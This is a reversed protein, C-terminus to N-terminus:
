SLPGGLRQPIWAAIATPAFSMVAGTRKLSHAFVFDENDSLSEDFKGAKIWAEKTFLVSRTAPLFIEPPQPLKDPMVLVYPVVAAQWSTTVLGQYYGAVVAAKTEHQKKVLEELWHPDLVCGADTCAILQSKAQTIAANRGVSRNGPQVLIQTSFHTVPAALEQLLQVTDDTSGGDVVIVEDPLKTQAM